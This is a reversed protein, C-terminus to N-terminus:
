NCHSSSDSSHTAHNWSSPIRYQLFSFFLIVFVLCIFLWCSSSWRDKSGLQPVTHEAAEMVENETRHVEQSSM